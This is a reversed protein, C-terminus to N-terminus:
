RKRQTRRRGPRGAVGAVLRTITALVLDPKELHIGHGAGVMTDVRGLPSLSGQDSLLTGWLAQVQEAEARVLHASMQGIMVEPDHVLVVLPVAPFPGLAELEAPTTRSELLDYEALATQYGQARTLHRWMSQRAEPPHQRCLTFPPAGMIVPKLVWMLRFRALSNAMRLRVALDSGSARFVKPPLERRLRGNDPHAPDLLVVGSVRDAALRALANSYLGGQSHGVLVLPGEPAVTNLLQLAEGAVNAVTRPTRPPRSEGYGPRDWSLVRARKALRDQIPWWEASAFGLGQTIMVTVAGEGRLRYAIETDGVRATPV